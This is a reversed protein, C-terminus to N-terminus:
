WKLVECDEDDGENNNNGASQGNAAAAADRKDREEADKADRCKNMEAIFASADQVIMILTVGDRSVVKVEDRSSTISVVGGWKCSRYHVSNPNSDGTDSTPDVITISEKSVIAVAKHEFGDQECFLSEANREM